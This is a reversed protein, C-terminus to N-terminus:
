GEQMLDIEQLENGAWGLRVLRIQCKEHLRRTNAESEGKTLHSQHRGTAIPDRWVTKKAAPPPPIKAYPNKWPSFFTSCPLRATDGKNRRAPGLHHPWLSKEHSTRSNM